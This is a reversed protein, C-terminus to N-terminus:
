KEREIIRMIPKYEHYKIVTEPLHLLDLSLCPIWFKDCFPNDAAGHALLGHDSLLQIPM